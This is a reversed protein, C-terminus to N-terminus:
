TESNNLSIKHGVTYDLKSFTRHVNSFFTYKAEKPNDNPIAARDKNIKQRFSRDMILLSTNFDGVIAIATM